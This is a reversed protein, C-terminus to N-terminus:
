RSYRVVQSHLLLSTPTFYSYLTLVTHVCYSYLTLVTHTCDSYLTLVTHTCDPYLTLVTHTCHSYLRLLTGGANVLEPAGGKGPRLLVWNFPGLPDRVAAFCQEASPPHPFEIATPRDQPRKAVPGVDMAETNADIQNQYDRKMDAISFSSTDSGMDDDSYFVSAIQDFVFDLNAQQREQL